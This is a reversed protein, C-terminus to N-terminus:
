SIKIRHIKSVLNNKIMLFRIKQRSLIMDKRMLFAKIKRVGYIKRSKNFTSIVEEEYNNVDYKFCNNTQYYYQSTAIKLIQCM